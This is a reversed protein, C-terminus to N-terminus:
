RASPPLTESRHLYVGVPSGATLRNGLYTSACGKRPTALDYHVEGVTLHVEGPHASPGSAISYLRPQLPRLGDVLDQPTPSAGGDGLVDILQAAPDPTMGWAQATAPTVVTLDLRSLLAARLTSPGTKLVVQEAGSFDGAALIAAVESGCNVPWVGLADGARYDLDAGGGALSIEIHNVSKSSGPGSLREVHLLTGMFPHAKDFVPGAPEPVAPGVSAGAASAFQPTEFVATKWAAYDDEYALDCAAVDRVRTAGLAALRVDIDRAAQNFQAYSSDGLGCVAYFLEPGLAPADAAMIAAHFARANDAPEGEGFTAALILLHGMGPLDALEIDDLASVRATFGRTTAYKRLDKSLAECTGSQSGYLITMATAPAEPGGSVDGAGAIAQLGALLGNLWHRQAPDFPADEPLFGPARAAVTRDIAEALVAFPSHDQQTM